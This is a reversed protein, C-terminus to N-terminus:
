PTTDKNKRAIYLSISLIDPNLLLGVLVLADGWRRVRGTDLVIRM